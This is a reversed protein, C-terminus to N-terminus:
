QETMTDISHDAKVDLTLTSPDLQTGMLSNTSIPVATKYQEPLLSVDNYEHLIIDEVLIDSGATVSGDEIFEFNIQTYHLRDVLERENVPMGFWGIDTHPNQFSTLKLEIERLVDSEMVATIADGRNYNALSDAQMAYQQWSWSIMAIPALPQLFTYEQKEVNYGDTICDSFTKFCRQSMYDAPLARQFQEGAATAITMEDLDYGIGIWNTPARTNFPTTNHGDMQSANHLPNVWFSNHMTAFSFTSHWQSRVMFNYGIDDLTALVMIFVKGPAHTGRTTPILYISLEHPDGHSDVISLYQSQIQYNKDTTPNFGAQRSTTDLDFVSEPAIATKWSAFSNVKIKFDVRTVINAEHFDEPVGINAEAVGARPYPVNLRVSSSDAVSTAATDSDEDCGQLVWSLILIPILKFIMM